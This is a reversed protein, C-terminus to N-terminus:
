MIKKHETPDTHGWAMYNGLSSKGSKVKGYVFVLLSDNFGARFHVGTDQTAIKKQWNQNTEELINRFKEV